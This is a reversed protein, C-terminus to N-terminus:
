HGIVHRAGKIASRAQEIHNLANRTTRKNTGQIHEAIDQLQVSNWGQRWYQYCTAHHTAEPLQVATHTQAAILEARFRAQRGMDYFQQYHRNM